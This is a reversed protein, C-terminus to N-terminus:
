YSNDPLDNNDFSGITFGCVMIKALRDIKKHFMVCMKACNKKLITTFNFDKPRGCMKSSHNPTLLPM